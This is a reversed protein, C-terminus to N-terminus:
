AASSRKMLGTNLLRNLHNPIELVNEEMVAGPAALGNGTLAAVASHPSRSSEERRETLTHDSTQDVERDLDSSQDPIPPSVTDLPKRYKACLTNLKDGCVKDNHYKKDEIIRAFEQGRKHKLAESSAIELQTMVSLAHKANMPENFEAWKTILITPFDNKIELLGAVCLAAIGKLYEIEKWRLDAM